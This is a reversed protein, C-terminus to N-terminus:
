KQANLLNAETTKIRNALAFSLMVFEVASGIQQANSTLGNFPFIGASTLIISATGMLFALWAVLYIQALRVGRWALPIGSGLSFLLGMLSFAMLSKAALSYPLFWTTVLSLTFLAIVVIGFKYFRPSSQRLDLLIIAFICAQVGSFSGFFPFTKDAFGIANPWLLQYGIGGYACVLLGYGLLFLTYSAYARSRTTLSLLGNYIFIVLLAGFYLAQLTSDTVRHDAFAAHTYLTLPMQLSAGSQVRLWCTHAANSINFTPMRFTSPWENLPVHDGARQQLVVNGQTNACWLEAFDTQGYALTLMLPWNAYPQSPSRTDDLTFRAWYASKTYGFSPNPKTSPTFQNALETGRVDQLTLQATPDELISLNLGITRETFHDDIVIAPEAAFTATHCLAMTALLLTFLLRLWPKLMAHLRNTANNALAANCRPTSYAPHIPQM